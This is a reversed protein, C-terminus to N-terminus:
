GLFDFLNLQGIRAGAQLAAQRGTQTQTLKTIAEALNANEIDASNIILDAVESQTRETLSRLNSIRGGVNARIEGLQDHRARITDISAVIAAQDDTLLARRLEVLDDFMTGGPNQVNGTPPTGGFPDTGKVNQVITSNDDIRLEIDDNTGNYAYQPVVTFEDGAAFAGATYTYQVGNLIVSDGPAAFTGTAMVQDSGDLDIIEYDGAGNLMRIQYIHSDYANQDVIAGTVTAASGNNTISVGGVSYTEGDVNGIIQQLSSTTSRTGSFLHRGAVQADAHNLIEDTLGLLEEAIGRRPEGVTTESAGQENLQIVRTLALSVSNLRSDSSELRNNANDINSVFQNLRSIESEIASLQTFGVPDDSPRNIRKGTTVQENYYAYDVNLKQIQQLFTQFIISDTVRM